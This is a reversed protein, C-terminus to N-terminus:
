EEQSLGSKIKRNMIGLTYNFFSYVADRAKNESDKPEIRIMLSNGDEAGIITVWCSDTFEKAAELISPYDYFNFDIEFEAVNNDIKIEM